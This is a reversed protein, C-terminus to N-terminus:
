NDSKLNSQSVSKKLQEYKAMIGPLNRNRFEYLDAYSRIGVDWCDLGEKVIVYPLMERETRYIRPEARPDVLFSGEAAFVRGFTHTHFARDFLFDEHFTEVYAAPVDQAILLARFLLGADSCTPFRGERLMQNATRKRFISAKIKRNQKEAGEVYGEILPLRSVYACTKYVTQLPEKQKALRRNLELEAAADAHRAVLPTVETQEGEKLWYEDMVIM